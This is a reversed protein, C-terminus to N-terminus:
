SGGGGRASTGVAHNYGYTKKDLGDSDYVIARGTTPKSKLVSMKVCRKIFQLPKKLNKEAM